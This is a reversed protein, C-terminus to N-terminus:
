RIRNSPLRGQARHDQLCRARQACGSWTGVQLGLREPPEHALVSGGGKGSREGDGGQGQTRQQGHNRCTQGPSGVLRRLGLSAAACGPQGQKQGLMGGPGHIRDVDFDGADGILDAVLVPQRITLVFVPEVPQALDGVLRWLDPRQPQDIRGAPDHLHGMVPRGGLQRGGIVGIEGAGCGTDVPQDDIRRDFPHQGAFPINRGGPRDPGDVVPKEAHHGRRDVRGIENLDVTRHIHARTAAQQEQVGVTALEAADGVAAVTGAPRPRAQLSGVRM